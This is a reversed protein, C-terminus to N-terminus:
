VLQAGRQGDVAGKDLDGEAPRVHRGLGALEPLGQELDVGAVFPENVAQEGEGAGFLVGGCAVWEVQGLHGLVRDVLGGAWGTGPQLCRQPRRRGGTVRYEEFAQDLVQYV